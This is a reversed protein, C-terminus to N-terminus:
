FDCDFDLVPNLFIWHPHLQECFFRSNLNKKMIEKKKSGEKVAVLM